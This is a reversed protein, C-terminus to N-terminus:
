VGAGGAGDGGSGARDAPPAQFEDASAEDDSKGIVIGHGDRVSDEFAKSVDIEYNKSIFNKARRLITNRVELLSDYNDILRVVGNAFSEINIDEMTMKTPEEDDGTELPDSVDGTDEEEGAETILRRTLMRFDSGEAQLAKAEGEFDSFYRDVQSDLSDDTEEPLKTDEKEAEGLLAESILKKLESYLIKM